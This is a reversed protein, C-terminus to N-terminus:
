NAIWFDCDRKKLNAPRPAAINARYYEDGELINRISDIRQAFKDIDSMLTHSPQNRSIPAYNLSLFEGIPEALKQGLAVVQPSDGDVKLAAMLGFLFGHMNRVTQYALVRKQDISLNAGLLEPPTGLPDFVLAGLYALSLQLERPRARERNRINEVDVYCDTMLCSRNSAFDHAMYDRLSPNREMLWTVVRLTRADGTSFFLRILPDAFSFHALLKMREPDVNPSSEAAEVVAFFGHVVKLRDQDSIDVRRRDIPGFAFELLRMAEDGRNELVLPPLDRFRFGAAPEELTIRSNDGRFTYREIKPDSPHRSRSLSLDGLESVKGTALFSLIVMRQTDSFRAFTPQAFPLVLSLAAFVWKSMIKETLTGDRSLVDLGTLDAVNVDAERRVFRGNYIFM